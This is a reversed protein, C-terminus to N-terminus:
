KTDPGYVYAMEDPHDAKFKVLAAEAAAEEAYNGILYMQDGPLEHTDVGVVNFGEGAKPVWRAKDKLMAELM